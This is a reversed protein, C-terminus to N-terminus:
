PLRRVSPARRPRAPAARPRRRVPTRGRGCRDNLLRCSCAASKASRSVLVTRYTEPGSQAANMASATGLGAGEPNALFRGAADHQEVLDALEQAECRIIDTFPVAISFKKRDFLRLNGHVDSFIPALWQESVLELPRRVRPNRRRVDLEMTLMGLQFSHHTLTPLAGWSGPLSLFALGLRHEAGQVERDATRSKARDELVYKMHEDFFQADLRLGPRDAIGVPVELGSALLPSPSLHRSAHSVRRGSGDNHEALEPVAYFQRGVPRLGISAVLQARDSFVSYLADVPIGQPWLEKLDMLLTLECLGLHAYYHTQATLTGLETSGARPEQPQSMRRVGAPGVM